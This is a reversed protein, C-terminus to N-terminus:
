RTPVDTAPRPPGASRHSVKKRKPTQAQTSGGAFFTDWWSPGGQQTAATRSKQKAAPAAPTQTPVAAAPTPKQSAVAAAPQQRAPKDPVAQAALYTALADATERSSTYHERLYSSLSYRNTAKALGRPSHHCTACNSAFLRDASKGKDLDEEACAGQAVVLAVGLLAIRGLALM